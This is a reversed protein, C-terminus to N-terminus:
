PASGALQPCSYLHFRRKGRQWVALSPVRKPLPVEFVLYDPRPAQACLAHLLQLNPTQCARLAQADARQAMLADAVVGLECQERYTEIDKYRAWRAGVILATERNFLMGARQQKSYHSVHGLLAWVKALHDPWYVEARTDLIAAFPPAIERMETAKAADDRRDWTLIAAMLSLSSLAVTLGAGGWPIRRRWALGVATLAFALAPDSVVRATIAVPWSVPPFWAMRQIDLYLESASLWVLAFGCAAILGHQLGASVEARRWAAALLLVWIGLALLGYDNAADSCILVFALVAAASRWLDGRQWLLWVLWPSLGLVVVHVLWLVRWLQLQTPLTLHLLDSAVYSTALLIIAAFSLSRALWRGEPTPLSGALLLLVSLEIAVRAWNALTWNTLFVQVNSASVVQWWETDYSQALRSLPSVGAFAAAVVMAGLCALMLWRRDRRVWAAWTLLLGPAAMLPHCLAAMVQLVLARELRQAVLAVLSWLVLPEALTRATLFPELIGFIRMGGYLPSGVAVALAGWGALAGVGLHRLLALLAALSAGFSALILSRHILSWDSLLGYLPGLLRSYVSWQDQSGGAFFPDVSLDVLGSRNLVQGLYLVADHVTGYYPHALLLLAAAFLPWSLQALPRPPEIM